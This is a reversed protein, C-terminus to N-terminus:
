AEEEKSEEAIIDGEGSSIPAALKYISVAHPHEIVAKSLRLEVRKKSKYLKVNGHASNIFNKLFISVGGKTANKVGVHQINNVNIKFNVLYVQDVTSVFGLYYLQRMAKTRIVEDLKDKYNVMFMKIAEDFKQEKFLIDLDKGTKKFNQILSKENSEIKNMIICFVDIGDGMGTKVDMAIHGKGIQEGATVKEIFWESFEDEVFLSRKAERYFDLRHSLYDKIMIKMADINLGEPLPAIELVYTGSNNPNHSNEIPYKTELTKLFKTLWLSKVKTSATAKKIFDKEYDTIYKKVSSHNKKLTAKNIQYETTKYKRTINRLTAEKSAGLGKPMKSIIEDM